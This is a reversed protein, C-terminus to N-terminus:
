AYNKGRVRGRVIAQASNQKLPIAKFYAIFSLLLFLYIVVWLRLLSLELVGAFLFGAFSATFGVLGHEALLELYLNHPWPTYRDDVIISEHYGVDTFYSTYFEGFTHPGFGTIPKDLFMLWAADWLPLRSDNLSVIKNLFSFQSFADILVVCMISAILFGWPMRKSNFFLYAAASVVLVLLATRSQLVVIFALFLLLIFITTVKVIASKANDSLMLIFPALLAVLIIDNPVLILLTSSGSVLLAPESLGATDSFIQITMLMLQYGVLIMLSLIIVDVDRRYRCISILYYILFAPVLPIGYLFSTTPNKSLVACCLFPLSFGLLIIGLAVPWVAVSTESRKFLQNVNM